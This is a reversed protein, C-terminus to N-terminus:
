RSSCWRTRPSARRSGKDGGSVGASLLHWMDGQYEHSCSPCRSARRNGCRVYLVSDPPSRSDFTSLHQGSRRDFTRAQGFLRVPRSCFGTSAVQKSWDEFGDSLMRTLATPEEVDLSYLDSASM